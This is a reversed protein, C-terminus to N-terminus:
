TFNVVVQKILATFVLLGVNGNNTQFLQIRERLFFARLNYSFVAMYFIPNPTLFLRLVLTGPIAALMM